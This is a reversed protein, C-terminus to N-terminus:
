DAAGGGTKQQVSCKKKRRWVCWWTTIKFNTMQEKQLIGTSYKLSSRFSVLSVSCHSRQHLFIFEITGEVRCQRWNFNPPVKRWHKLKMYNEYVKLSNKKRVAKNESSFIRCVKVFWCAASDDALWSKGGKEGWLTIVYHQSLSLVIDLSSM